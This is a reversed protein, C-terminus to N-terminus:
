PLLITDPFSNIITPKSRNTQQESLREVDTFTKISFSSNNRIFTRLPDLHAENDVPILM